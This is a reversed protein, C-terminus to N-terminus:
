SLVFPQFTVLYIFCYSFFIQLSHFRNHYSWVLTEELFAQPNLTIVIIIIIIFVCILGVVACDNWEIVLSHVSVRECGFYVSRQTRGLILYLTCAM